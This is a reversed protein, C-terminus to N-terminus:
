SQGDRVDHIYNQNEVAELVTKRIGLLLEKFSVGEELHYRVALIMNIFDGETEQKEVHPQRPPPLCGYEEAVGATVQETKGHHVQRDTQRLARIPCDLRHRRQPEAHQWQQVRDADHQPPQAFTM